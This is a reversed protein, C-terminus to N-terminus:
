DPVRRGIKRRISLEVIKERGEKSQAQRVAVGPYRGEGKVFVNTDSSQEVVAVAKRCVVKVIVAM